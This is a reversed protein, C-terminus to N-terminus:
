IFSSSSVQRIVCSEQPTKTLIHNGQDNFSSYSPPEPLLEFSHLYSDRALEVKVRFQYSKGRGTKRM